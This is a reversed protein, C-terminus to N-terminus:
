NTANSEEVAITVTNELNIGGVSKYRMQGDILKVGMECIQVETIDVQGFDYEKLEQSRFIESADILTRKYREKPRPRLHLTNIM